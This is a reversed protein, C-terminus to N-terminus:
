GFIVEITEEITAVKPELTDLREETTPPQVTPAPATGGEVWQTGNWKPLYFGAPCHQEITFETLEEVFDEKVYLGNKDIIRVFVM